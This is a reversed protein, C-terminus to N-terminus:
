KHLTNRDIWTSINPLSWIGINAVDQMKAGWADFNTCSLVLQKLMVCKITIGDANEVGISGDMFVVGSKVIRVEGITM